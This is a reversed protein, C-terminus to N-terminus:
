CKTRKRYAYVAKELSYKIEQLIFNKMGKYDTWKKDKDNEGNSENCVM